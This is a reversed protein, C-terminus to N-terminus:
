IDRRGESYGHAWIRMTSLQVVSVFSSIVIAFAYTVGPQEVIKTVINFERECASQIKEARELTMEKCILEIM